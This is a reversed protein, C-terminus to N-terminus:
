GSGFHLMSVHVFVMSVSAWGEIWWVDFYSLSFSKKKLISCFKSSSILNWGVTLVNRLAPCSISAHPHAHTQPQRSRSAPSLIIQTHTHTHPVHTNTLASAHINKNTHIQMHLQPSRTASPVSCTTSTVLDLCLVSVPLIPPAILEPAIIIPPQKTSHNTWVCLDCVCMVTFPLAHCVCYARERECVCVCVVATCVCYDYAFDCGVPASCCVTHFLEELFCTSESEFWVSKNTGSCLAYWTSNYMIIELLICAPVCAHKLVCLAM